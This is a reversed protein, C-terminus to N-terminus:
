SLNLDVGCTPPSFHAFDTLGGVRHLLASREVVEYLARLLAEAQTNGSGLGNSSAQLSPPQWPRDAELTLRVADLPLPVPQLPDAGAPAAPSPLPPPVKRAAAADKRAVQRCVMFPTGDGSRTRPLRMRIRLVTPAIRAAAASLRPIPAAVAGDAWAAVLQEGSLSPM